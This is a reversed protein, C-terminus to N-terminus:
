KKKVDYKGKNIQNFTYQKGHISIDKNMKTWDTEYGSPTTRSCAIWESSHSLVYTVILLIIIEM